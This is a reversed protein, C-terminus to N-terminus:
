KGLLALFGVIIREGIIRNGLAVMLGDPNAM